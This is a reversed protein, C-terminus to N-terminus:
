TAVKEIKFLMLDRMLHARKIAEDAIKGEFHQQITEEWHIIWRDFHIRTLPSLRNLEIHKLMVNRRYVMKDLLVSEWFDTIIPIHKEMDLEIVETFFHGIVEDKLSKGYFERILFDLDTRNSIDNM